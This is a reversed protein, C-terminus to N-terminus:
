TDSGKEAPPAAPPRPAPIPLPITMSEGPQLAFGEGIAVRCSLRSSGNGLDTDTCTWRRGDSGTMTFTREHTCACLAVILVLLPGVRLWSGHPRDPCKPPAESLWPMYKGTMAAGAQSCPLGGKHVWQWWTARDRRWTCIAAHVFFGIALGLLLGVLYGIL